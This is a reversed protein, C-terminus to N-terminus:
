GVFRMLLLELICTVKMQESPFFCVHLRVMPNAVCDLGTVYVTRDDLAMKAKLADRADFYSLVFGHAGDITCTFVSDLDGGCDKFLSTLTSVATPPAKVCLYRSNFHRDNSLVSNVLESQLPDQRASKINTVHGGAPKPPKNSSPLQVSVQSRDDGLFDQRWISSVDSADLSLM